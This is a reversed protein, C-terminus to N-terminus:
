GAFLHGTARGFGCRLPQPGAKPVPDHARSAEVVKKQSLMVGWFHTIFKARFYRFRHM